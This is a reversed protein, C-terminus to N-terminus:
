IVDSRAKSGAYRSKAWSQCFSGAQVSVRRENVRAIIVNGNHAIRDILNKVPICLVRNYPIMAEGLPCRMQVSTARSTLDYIFQLHEVSTSM